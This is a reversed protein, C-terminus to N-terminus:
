ALVIEHLDCLLGLAVKDVQPQTVAGLIAHAFPMGEWKPRVFASPATRATSSTSTPFTPSSAPLDDIKKESTGARGVLRKLMSLARFTILKSSEPDINMAAVAGSGDPGGLNAAAGALKVLGVAWGDESQLWARALAGGSSSTAMNNAGATSSSANSSPAPALSSLIDAALMGQALYAKRAEVIRQQINSPAISGISGADADSIAAAAAAASASSNQTRDPLVSVALAFSRTLLDLPHQQNTPRQYASSTNFHFIQRYLERNPEQRALLKALCDVAPPLYRHVSPNFSPFVLSKRPRSMPSDAKYEPAFALLFLLIKRAVDKNPLELSQTVNSLFIIADKYFDQTNFFSRLFLPADEEGSKRRLSIGEIVKAFWSVVAEDTLLRHNVEYFSFNRLITTIAIIKEAARDLTYDATGLSPTSAFTGKASTSTPLLSFSELKSGRLLAEYSPLSDDSTPSTSFAQLLIELEGEGCDVLADLLEECGDLNLAIRQDNSLVALADLAYRVETHIGSALGMTLGRIDVYALDEVAPSPPTARVITSAVADLAPIDYGGYSPNTPNLLHHSQPLYNTSLPLEESKMLPGGMVVGSANDGPLSERKVSPPRQLHQSQLPSNAAAATAAAIAASNPHLEPQPTLQDTKRLSSGRRHQLSGPGTMMQQPTTLGNVALSANSQVPTSQPHPLQNQQSPPYQQFPQNGTATATTKIPSQQPQQQPQQPQQQQGQQLAPAAGGPVQQQNQRAPDQVRKSQFWLQEYSYIGTMYLQKLEDGATPYQAQNFGLRMAMMPWQRGAEIKQSGGTSVVASWLAYLDVQKGGINPLPNFQRGQQQAMQTLAQLFQRRKQDHMQRHQQQQPTLATQNGPVGNAAQSPAPQQGPFQGMPGSQPAAVNRSPMMGSNRMQQQKQMLQMQYARQEPTMNAAANPMRMQMSQMAQATMGPGAMGYGQQPFAGMQGQQQQMMNQQTPTPPLPSMQNGYNMQQQPFPSPSATNIRPQQGQQQQQQQQQQQPQPQPQQQQPQQGPPRFPQSQMTPSPTANNSGPQQLHQYPTPANAFQGMNPQQGGQFQNYSSPTQARSGPPLQQPQGQTPSGSMGDHPRKAPVVSAPNFSPQQFPQGQPPTPNSVIGAAGGNNSM